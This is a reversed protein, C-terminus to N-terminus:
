TARLHAVCDATSSLFLMGAARSAGSSGSAGVAWLMATIPEIAAASTRM